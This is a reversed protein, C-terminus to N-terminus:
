VCKKKIDIENIEFNPQCIHWKVQISENRQDIEWILLKQTRDLNFIIWFDYTIPVKQLDEPGTM